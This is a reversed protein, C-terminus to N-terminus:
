DNNKPLIAVQKAIDKVCDDVTKMLIEVDEKSFSREVGKTSYGFRHIIDNRIELAGKLCDFDVTINFAIDFLETILDFKHYLIHNEITNIYLLEKQLCDRGNIIEKNAKGHIINKSLLIGSDLVRHFSEERDCTQRVFTDSLFHELLSFVHAYQQQYFLQRLQTDEPYHLLLRSLREKNLDYSDITFQYLDKFAFINGNEIGSATVFSKVHYTNFISGCDEKIELIGEPPTIVCAGEPCSEVGVYIDRSYMNGTKAIVGGDIYYNKVM